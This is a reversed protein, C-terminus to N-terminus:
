TRRLKPHWPWPSTPSESARGAAPGPHAPPSCESASSATTCRRELVARRGCRSRCGASRSTPRKTAHARVGRCGRSLGRALYVRIAEDSGGPSTFFEVLLEWDPRGSTPRRPSSASRPTSRTSATSTSCGPRSDGLRAHRIPHRYQKILLVRDQEDLALMAVAGTHAVYERVIEGGDYGFPGRRVDWVKGAFVLESRSVPVSVPRRRDSPEARTLRLSGDPEIPEAVEFLRSAQQRELAAGVLGRFLPHADTRGRACSPTRRRASTSRTCTARCSSSSSWTATPPSARLVRARGDAIQTATPTTSRTATATGSPSRADLRVARRRDLGDALDAPYLGLRM